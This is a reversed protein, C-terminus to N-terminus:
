WIVVFVKGKSYIPVTGLWAFYNMRRLAHKRKISALNINVYYGCGWCCLCYVGVSVCFMRLKLWEPSVCSHVTEKPPLKQLTQRVNTEQQLHFNFLIRNIFNTIEKKRKTPFLFEFIMRHLSFSLFNSIECVTLFM